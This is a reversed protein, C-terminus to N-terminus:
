ATTAPPQGSASLARYERGVRIALYLWACVLLVNIFAFGRPHLTFVTTGVFVIVASVVDGM